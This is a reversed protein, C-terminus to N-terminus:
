FQPNRVDRNSHQSSYSGTRYNPPSLDAPPSLLMGGRYNRPSPPSNLDRRGGPSSSMNSPPATPFRDFNQAAEPPLRSLAGGPGPVSGSMDGHQAIQNYNHQEYQQQQLQLVQQQRVMMGDNILQMMQGFRSSLHMSLDRSKTFFTNLDASSDEDTEPVDKNLISMKLGLAGALFSYSASIASIAWKPHERCRTAAAPRAPTHCARPRAKRELLRNLNQESKFAAEKYSGFSLQSPNVIPNMVQRQPVSSTYKTGQTNQSQSNGSPVSVCRWLKEFYERGSIEENDITTRNDGEENGLETADVEADLDVSEESDEEYRDTTFFNRSRSM